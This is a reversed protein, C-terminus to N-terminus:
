YVLTVRAERVTRKRISLKQSPAMRSRAGKVAKDLMKSVATWRGLKLPFAEPSLSMIWCRINRERLDAGQLPISPQIDYSTVRTFM